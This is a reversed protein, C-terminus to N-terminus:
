TALWRHQIEASPVPAAQELAPFLTQLLFSPIHYQSYCLSTSARHLLHLCIGRVDQLGDVRFQSSAKLSFECDENWDIEPFKVAEWVIRKFAFSFGYGLHNNKLPHNNQPNLMRLAVGAQDCRYHLGEKQMLNGSVSFARDTIM